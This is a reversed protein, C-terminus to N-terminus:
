LGCVHCNCWKHNGVLREISSMLMPGNMNTYGREGETYLAFVQAVIDSLVGGIRAVIISM